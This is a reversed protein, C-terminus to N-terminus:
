QRTIRRCWQWVEGDTIANDSRGRLRNVAVRDYGMPDAIRKIALQAAVPMSGMINHCDRCLSLWAARELLAAQRAPGRAIEHVETAQSGCWQCSPFAYRYDDRTM